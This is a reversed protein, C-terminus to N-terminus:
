QGWDPLNFEFDEDQNKRYLYYGVYAIGGVIAAIQMHEKRRM